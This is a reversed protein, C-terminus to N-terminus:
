MDASQQLRQEKPIKSSHNKKGAPSELAARSLIVEM